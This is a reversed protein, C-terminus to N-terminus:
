QAAFPMGLRSLLDLAEEDTKASTAITINLGLPHKLKDLDVEPFVSVDKVGLNYNGAKDFGKRSVGRFDRVRPLTNHVLRDYFEFMRSGRLTVMVGVPMGRRLKFNAINKRSKTVVPIQGSIVALHDKAENFVEKESKTNIGCNIVIKTLRPVQLKNTYGRAAMLEPVIKEFYTKKIDPM